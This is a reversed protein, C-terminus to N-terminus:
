IASIKWTGDPIREFFFWKPRDKGRLARISWFPGVEGELVFSTYRDVTSRLAEPALSDVRPGFDTLASSTLCSRALVRDGNKMAAVFTELTRQPSGWRPDSTFTSPDIVKRIPGALPPPPASKVGSRRVSKAAPKSAAQTAPKAAIKTSPRALPKTAIRPAPKASAPAKEECPGDQYVITGNADPCGHITEESPDGAGAGTSAAALLWVLM